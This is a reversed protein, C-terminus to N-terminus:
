KLDKQYYPFYLKEEGIGNGNLPKLRFFNPTTMGQYTGAGVVGISQIQRDGYGRDQFDKLIDVLQNITINQYM